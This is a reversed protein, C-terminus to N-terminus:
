LHQMHCSDDLRDADSLVRRAPVLCILNAQAHLQAVQAEPVATELPESSIARQQDTNGELVLCTRGM